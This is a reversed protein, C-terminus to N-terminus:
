GAGSTLWNSFCKDGRSQELVYIIKDNRSKGWAPKVPVGYSQTGFACSKSRSDVWDTVM